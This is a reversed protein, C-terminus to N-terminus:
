LVQQFAYVIGAFLVLCILSNLALNNLMASWLQNHLVAVIMGVVMLFLFMRGLYVGPPILTRHLSPQGATKARAMGQIEASRQSRSLGFFTSDFVPGKMGPAAKEPCKAAAPGIGRRPRLPRRPSHRSSPSTFTSIPLWSTTAIWCSRGAGRMRLM